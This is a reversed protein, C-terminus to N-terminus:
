NETKNQAFTEKIADVALMFAGISISIDAVNFAPFNFEWPTYYFHLFDVVYSLTMRDYVNGIAGGLVLALACALWQESCKLRRMWVMLGVSVVLAIGTFFYRQWGGQDALFSFAAGENHQLTFSFFSLVEISNATGYDLLNSAAAKTVYDVIFILLTVWLWRLQGIKENCTETMNRVKM